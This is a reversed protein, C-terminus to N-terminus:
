AEESAQKRATRIIETQLLLGEVGNEKLTEQMLSFALTTGRKKADVLNKVLLTVLRGQELPDIVIAEELDEDDVDDFQIVEEQIDPYVIADRVKNEPETTSNEPAEEPKEKEEEKEKEPEVEKGKEPNKWGTLYQPTPAPAREKEKIIGEIIMAEVMDNSEGIQVNGIADPCVFKVVMSFVKYKLMHNPYKEYVTNVLKREKAMEWTFTDEYSASGDKRTIKVTATKDDCQGWEIKHGARIVQAIVEPGYMTLKGNVFYFSNISQIPQMGAEFGAQLIMMLQPANKVTSPLANSKVFTDAMVQMAKWRVPNMFSLGQAEATAVYMDSRAPMDSQEPMNVIGNNQETM